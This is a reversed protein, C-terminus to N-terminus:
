WGRIYLIDKKKTTDTFEGCDKCHIVEVMEGGNSWYAQEEECSNSGCKSCKMNDGRSLLIKKNM